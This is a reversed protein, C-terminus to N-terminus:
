KEGEGIKRLYFSAGHNKIEGRGRVADIMKKGHPHSIFEHKLQVYIARVRLLIHFAIWQVLAVFTRRNLYSLGKRVIMFIEDFFVDTKRGWRSIFSPKGTRIEYHKNYVM